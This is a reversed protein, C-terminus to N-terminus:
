CRTDKACHGKYSLLKLRREKAEQRIARMDEYLPSGPERHFVDPESAAFEALEERVIRRMLPELLQILEDANIM